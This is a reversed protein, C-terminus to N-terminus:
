NDQSAVMMQEDLMRSLNNQYVYVVCHDIEKDNVEWSYLEQEFGQSAGPEIETHYLNWEVITILQDNSDFLLAAMDLDIVSKDTNNIFKGVIKYDGSKERYVKVDSTELRVEEILCGRMELDTVVKIDSPYDDSQYEVHCLYGTENPRLVDPIIQGYEFTTLLEGESNEVEFRGFNKVINVNGTNKIPCIVTFRKTGYDSSVFMASPEGIEWEASNALEIMEEEISSYSPNEEPQNTDSRSAYIGIGILMAAITAFIIGRKLKKNNKPELDIQESNIIKKIDEIVGQIEQEKNNFANYLKGSALYKKFDESIECNEIRVYFISKNNKIALNLEKEIWISEQAQKSLLLVFVKCNKVAYAIEAAYSSGGQISDAAMWCSIGAEEIRARFWSVIETEEAKYSIFVESNPM